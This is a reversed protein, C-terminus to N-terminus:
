RVENTKLIMATGPRVCCRCRVALRNCDWRMTKQGTARCEAEQDRNGLLVLASIKELLLLAPFSGSSKRPLPQMGRHSTEYTRRLLPAESNPQQLEAAGGEAKDGQM